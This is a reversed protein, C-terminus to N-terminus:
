LRFNFLKSLYKESSYYTKDYKRKWKQQYDTFSTFPNDQVTLLENKEFIVHDKYSNLIIGNQILLNKINEDRQIASPEYDTNIFVKKVNHKKILESWADLPNDILIELSSGLTEFHNKIKSLNNLVFEIRADANNLKSLEDEDFIFIPLVPYGSKLAMLLGHNDHTRLDRRFWFISIPINNM